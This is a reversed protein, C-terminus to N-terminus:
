LVLLGLQVAKSVAQASTVCDLKFRASKLYDRATHPSIGLIIAIDGADKGQATLRLCELERDTLHPHDEGFVESIVRHHVRNAIALLTEFHKERFDVWEEASRAFSVSFLGRHGQKSRVPISMGHPGVGHALADM